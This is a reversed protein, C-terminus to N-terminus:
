KKAAFGVEEGEKKTDALSPLQTKIEGFKKEYNNVQKELLLFIRKAHGPTALFQRIQNGSFLGFVFQEEGVLINVNTLAYINPDINLPVSQTKQEM